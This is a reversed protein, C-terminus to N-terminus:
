KGCKHFEFPKVVVDGVIDFYEGKESYFGEGCEAEMYNANKVVYAMGMTDTKWATGLGGIVLVGVLIGIVKSMNM